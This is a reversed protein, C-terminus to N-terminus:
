KMALRWRSVEVLDCCIELGGFVEFLVLAGLRRLIERAQALEVADLAGLPKLALM